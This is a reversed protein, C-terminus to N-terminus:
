FIFLWLVNMKIDDSVGGYTRVYDAVAVIDCVRQM